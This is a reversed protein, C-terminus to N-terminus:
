VVPVKLTLIGADRFQLSLNIETGAALPAALGLLMVHLGGPTARVTAGPPCEVSTVERMEVVGHMNRSEHLEVRSAVPTSVSLLHDAKSGANTISFYVVGVSIGPPTPRARAETIILNGRRSETTPAGVQAQTQAQAQAQTQTQTQTQTPTPTQVQTQAQAQAQAQAVFWLCGLAASGASKGLNAVVEGRRFVL